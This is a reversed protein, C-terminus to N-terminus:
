DHNLEKLKAETLGTAVGVNKGASATHIEAVEEDTLGVWEHKPPNRYLPESVFGQAIESATPYEQWSLAKVEPKKRAYKVWAVPKQEASDSPQALAELMDAADSFTSPGENTHGAHAQRLKTILLTIKLEEDKSM